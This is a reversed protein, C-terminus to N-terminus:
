FAKSKIYMSFFFIVFTLLVYCGVIIQNTKKNSPSECMFREKIKKLRGNKILIVYNVGLLILVLVVINYESTNVPIIIRKLRIEFFVLITFINIFEVIVLSLLAKFVPVKDTKLFLAWSYFAYFIYQYFKMSFANYYITAALLTAVM